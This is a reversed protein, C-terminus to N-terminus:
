LMGSDMRVFGPPEQRLQLPEFIRLRLALGDPPEEDVHELLV